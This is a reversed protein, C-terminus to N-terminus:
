LSERGEETVLLRGAREMARAASPNKEALRGMDYMARLGRGTGLFPDLLTSTEATGPSHQYPKMRGSALAGTVRQMERTEMQRAPGKKYQNRMRTQLTAPTLTGEASRGGGSIGRLGLYNRYQERAQAWDAILDPKGAFDAQAAVLEDLQEVVERAIRARERDTGMATDMLRTRLRMVDQGDMLGTDLGKFEGLEMLGDVAKDLTTVRDALSEPIPVIGVEEGVRNLREGIEGSIEELAEDTFAVADSGM